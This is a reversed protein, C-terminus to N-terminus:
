QGAARKCFETLNRVGKRARQQPQTSGSGGSLKETKMTTRELIKEGLLELFRM